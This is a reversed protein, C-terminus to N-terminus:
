GFWGLAGVMGFGVWVMQQDLFSLPHSGVRGLRRDVPPARLARLSDPCKQLHGGQHPNRAFHKSEPPESPPVADCIVPHTELKHTKSSNETPQLAGVRGAEAAECVVKFLGM